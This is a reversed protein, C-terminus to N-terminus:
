SISLPNEEFGMNQALGYKPFSSKNVSKFVKLIQNVM